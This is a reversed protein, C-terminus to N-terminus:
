LERDGVQGDEMWQHASGLFQLNQEIQLCITAKNMIEIPGYDDRMFLIILSGCFCPCFGHARRSCCKPIAGKVPHLCLLAYPKTM